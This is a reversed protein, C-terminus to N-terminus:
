QDARIQKMLLFHSGPLELDEPCLLRLLILCDDTANKTLWHKMVFAAILLLKEETKMAGSFDGNADEELEEAIPISYNNEGVIEEDCVVGATQNEPDLIEDELQAELIHHITGRSCNGKKIRKLIRQKSRSPLRNVPSTDYQKYKFKSTM